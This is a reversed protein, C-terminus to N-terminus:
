ACADRSGREPRARPTVGAAPADTADRPARSVRARSGHTTVPTGRRTHTRRPAVGDPAPRHVGLQVGRHGRRLLRRDPPPVALGHAHHRAHQRHDHQEVGQHEGRVEALVAHPRSVVVRRVQGRHQPLPLDLRGARPPQQARRRRQAVFRPAGRARAAHPDAIGAVRARLRAAHSPHASARGSLIERAIPRHGIAVNRAAREHAGRAREVGRAVALREEVGRVRAHKQERADAREVRARCIQQLVPQVM